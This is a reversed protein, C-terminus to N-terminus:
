SFWVKLTCVITKTNKKYFVQSGGGGGTVVM